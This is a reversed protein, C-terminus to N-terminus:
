LRYIASYKRELHRLLADSTLPAGSVLQCLEPALHRRGPRHVADNLWGKIPELEGRTLLDDLDGLEARMTELLQAGYLNGLAYTPFYGFLGASWHVDQLAGDSDSEPELGLLEATQERWAGPLDAVSLDGAVLAREIQFRLIIHLNYTVEDAEVRILSPRVANIAEYFAELEVGDLAGPIAEKLRPLFFRWFPLSRGLLNEWLRSQSEHIGLSCYGGAPDRFRQPDLGQEYLAHGAEHIAGFLAPLPTQEDYRVTIRVDRLTGATFPHVSRDMRGAEFDFGMQAVLDRLFREQAQVPYRGRLVETRVQHAAGQLRGLLDVLPPRLGAFIQELAAENMGPEYEDLLVDYASAEGDRLAAAIERTVQLVRELHPAFPAFSGATHAEEWASQALACVRAKEAVLEGSLRVARDRERRLERLDACLDRDKDSGPTDADAEAAALLDGLEPAVLKEHAVTALAASQQGHQEAARRPMMTQQDWDLLGEAEQLDHIQRWRQRLKILPSDTM